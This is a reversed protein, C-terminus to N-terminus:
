RGPLWRSAARLAGRREKSRVRTWVVIGAAVGAGDRGGRDIRAGGPEGGDSGDLLFRLFSVASLHQLDALRGRVPVPGCAELPCKDDPGILTDSWFGISGQYEPQCAGEPPM